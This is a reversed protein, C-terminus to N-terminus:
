ADYSFDFWMVDLKGYGSCLERIQEHMFERYTDLNSQHDAFAPNDREPHQRDGFHPFDDRYWDIVSFYLGVKIGRARFAELYERVFDRGPARKVTTYDSVKSDFLAYGDHHKATMVAYKMGAAAALDAWANFDVHEPTFADIASEYGDNSIKAYSRVWEGRAPVAYAGWHIFMGFRDDRWWQSPAFRAHYRADTTGADTM